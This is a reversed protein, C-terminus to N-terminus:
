RHPASVIGLRPAGPRLPAAARRGALLARQAGPGAAARPEVEDSDTLRDDELTALRPAPLRMGILYMLVDVSRIERVRTGFRALEQEVPEEGALLRAYFTQRQPDWGYEWICGPEEATLHRRSM